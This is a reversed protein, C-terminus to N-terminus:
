ILLQENGHYEYTDVRYDYMDVHYHKVTHIYKLKDM